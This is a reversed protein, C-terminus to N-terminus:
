SIEGRAWRRQDGPSLFRVWSPIGQKSDWVPDDTLQIDIEYEFCAECLEDPPLELCEECQTEYEANEDTPWPTISPTWSVGIEQLDKKWKDIESFKVVAPVPPTEDNFHYLMREQERTEVAKVCYRARVAAIAEAASLGEVKILLAALLSGTRGHAGICGVEVTQGRKLTRHIIGVLRQLRDLGITGFDQWRVYIIQREEDELIPIRMKTEAYAVPNLRRIRSWSDVDLYVGLDKPTYCDETKPPVAKSGTAYVTHEGVAMPTHLHNCFNQLIYGM